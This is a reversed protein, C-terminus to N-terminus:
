NTQSTLDFTLKVASDM